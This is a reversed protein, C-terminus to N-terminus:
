LWTAERTPNDHVGLHRLVGPGPNRFVHPVQPPLSIMDGPGLVQVNGEDGVVWAEMVGELVFLCELYPHYHAPTQFGPQTTQVGILIPNGDDGILKQYRSLPGRVEAAVANLRTVIAKGVSSVEEM